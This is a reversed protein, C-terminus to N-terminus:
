QGKWENTSQGVKVGWTLGAQVFAQRRQEGDPRRKRRAKNGFVGDTNIM